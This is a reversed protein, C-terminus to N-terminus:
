ADGGVHRHADNWAILDALRYRVAAGKSTGLKIFPPGGGFVVARELFAVSVNLFTAAEKRTLLRAEPVTATPRGRYIENHNPNM